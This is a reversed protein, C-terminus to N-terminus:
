YKLREAKTTPRASIIRIADYRDAHSVVLVKGFKSFGVTIYRDEDLSHDPDHYTISFPDKFISIAEDFTVGHKQHNSKAKQPNWEFRM